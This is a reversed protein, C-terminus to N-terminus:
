RQSLYFYLLFYKIISMLEVFLGQPIQSGLSFWPLEKNDMDMDM